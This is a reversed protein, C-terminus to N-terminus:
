PAVGQSPLYRLYAWTKGLTKQLDAYANAIDLEDGLVALTQRSDMRGARLGALALESRQRALPIRTSEYLAIRDRASHWENLVATVETSHMRLTMEREAELARVAAHKARITPDQRTGPFMPLSVTFELSVMDSFEHGRKAYDLQASWDPRRAANAVVVDSRAAAIQADYTLLAVHQHLASLLETDGAALASFSPAAALPREAEAGIWRVLEARANGLERQAELIRDDLEAVAAHASLSDSVSTGGSALAAQALEVQLTRAPRLAQLTKLALEATYRAIWAQAVSQTVELQSQVAQAQAVSVMAQASNREASRKPGNPFSQMLGIRRMTMFDREVSWADVGNAPLNDVGGLLQPDPLRGAAMATAQAGEITARQAQLQPAAILAAAVAADLTLPVEPSGAAAVSRALLAFLTFYLLTKM